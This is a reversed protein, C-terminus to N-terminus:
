VFNPAFARDKLWTGEDSIYPCKEIGFVQWLMDMLPKTIKGPETSLLELNEVMQEPFVADADELEFPSSQQYDITYTMDSNAANILSFGIAAAGGVGGATLVSAANTLANWTEIAATMSKITRAANSHKGGCVWVAEVLGTRFVQMRHEPPDQASIYQIGDLNYRSNWYKKPMQLNSLDLMNQESFAAIPMVHVIAMPLDQIRKARIHSNLVTLRSSRWARLSEVVQARAGYANRIQDYTM